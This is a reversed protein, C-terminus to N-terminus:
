AATERGRMWGLALFAATSIVCGVGYLELTAEIM